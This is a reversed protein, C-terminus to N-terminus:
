PKKHQKAQITLSLIGRLLNVEERSLPMKAYIHKIRRLLKKPALPHIYGIHYLAAELHQHFHRLDDATALPPPTSHPTTHEALYAMRLEYCAIQVASALNLVAYDPNAPIMALISCQDLELNSLGHLETGFVLAIPQSRAIEAGEDIAERTYMLRHNLHRKRASFGIVLACDAIATALSDCVIAHDLVDLASTALATAQAHPFHKPNVLYLQSIGMTKMARASAGINGPHSTQCLVIRCNELSM